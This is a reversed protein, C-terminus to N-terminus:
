IAFGEPEAVLLRRRGAFSAVDLDEEISLSRRRVIDLLTLDQAPMSWIRRCPSPSLDLAVRLM